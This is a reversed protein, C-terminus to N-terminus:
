SSAATLFTIIRDFQFERNWERLVTALDSNQNPIEDLLYAIQLDSGKLAAWHLADVWDAAMQSLSLRLSEQTSPPIQGFTPLPVAPATTGPTPTAEGEYRYKIGLHSALKELLVPEHIPKPIFDDCGAALVTVRDEEFASATFAIIKTRRTPFPLTEDTAGGSRGFCAHEPYLFPGAAQELERIRRTAAYGDLVPMRMDMLILDPKWAQWFAIADAGHEAEYVELGVRSLLRSLLQRNEWQDEVILIRWNPQHPALGVVRRSPVQIATDAETAPWAQITFRFTSGQGPNSEVTICGGMLEIFKQSIVLGLGTGEQSQRGAKTQMFPRFLRAMEEPAIGMGTDEIDFQLTLPASASDVAPLSRRAPEGSAGPEESHDSEVQKVRLVVRGQATFKIANGVLNLLVQRLKNADTIVHQPIDPSREFVLDLQKEKAKLGLMDELINLLQYFDFCTEHLRTRGAEIKSMELVDNILNLLHQGCRSIIELYEQHDPYRTADHTMLQTFGLIANLPTRLEHSMNALFESKARNAAEAADRAKELEISQRKTKALLEAQQLAIGLQSSVHNALNIDAISWTRPGGNHYSALLGWLREGKFIPVTLYARAQFSELLRIYCDSFGETYIDQVASFTREKRNFYGGQTSQLYTDDILVPSTSWNKVVCRDSEFAGGSIAQQLHQALLPQWGSAVAEAVFTGSWNHSFQYITVRDCDLLHRLEQTTTKFIEEIELTQRMQEVVTRVARERNVGDRLAQEVQQREHHLSLASAAANLLSIESPAWTHLQSHHAFAIFGGLEEFVVLPLVLLSRVGRAALGPQEAAPFEPVVGHIPNGAMLSNHWRPFAEVLS